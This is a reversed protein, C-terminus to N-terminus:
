LRVWASGSNPRYYRYINGSANILIIGAPGDALPAGSSASVIAVFADNSATGNNNFFFTKSSDFVSQTWAKAGFISTSNAAASELNGKLSAIAASGATTSGDMDVICYRAVSSDSAHVYQGTPGDALATQYALVAKPNTGSPIVNVTVGTGRAVSRADSIVGFINNLAGRVAPGHKDASYAVYAVTLIGVITLVVLLEILTYGRSRGSPISSPM